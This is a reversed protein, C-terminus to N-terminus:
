QPVNQEITARLRENSAYGDSRLEGYITELNHITREVSYQEVGHRTDWSGDLCRDIAAAMSDLDGYEFRAGNRPGITETFPPVDAAAVPTGCANAELTSLGLTDATSATVFADLASYFGPLQKRPLFDRFTVNDPAQRELTARRPGEGVVVFDCGSLRKAVRLVEAVNKEMSMRGSYGILTQGADSTTDHPRFFELDVGVPLKVSEVDRSMRDTSTTVTDFRRLIGNEIPVYVKKLANAIGQSRISQHFYEEIPTHHTYVSPVDYKRAYYLGFLAGMAPGHSHVIDFEPLKSARKALGLRYGSYFPNPLSRIPIERAAPRYDGDPYVIWVEHGAQELRNRWLRLTYTVGDITPFYSDTFFGIKM